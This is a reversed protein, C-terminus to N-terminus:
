TSPKIFVYRDSEGEKFKRVVGQSALKEWLLKQPQIRNGLEDQDYLFHTSSYLPLGWVMQSFANLTLTRRLSYGRRRYETETGSWQEIPKDKFFRSKQSYNRVLESRGIINGCLDVDIFQASHEIHRHSRGANQTNWRKFQWGAFNTTDTHDDYTIEYFAIFNLPLYDKPDIFRQSAWEFRELVGLPIQDPTVTTILAMPLYKKFTDCQKQTLTANRFEVSM